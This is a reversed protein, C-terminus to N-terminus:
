HPFIVRTKILGPISVTVAYVGSKLGMYPYNLSGTGKRALIERGQVDMIKLSYSGATQISVGKMTIDIAQAPSKSDLSTSASSDLHIVMGPVSIDKPNNESTGIKDILAGSIILSKGTLTVSDKIDAAEESLLDQAWIAKIGTLPEPFNIVLEKFHGFIGIPQSLDKVQITVKARPHYWQDEPKVRGETAVAVPGNPYTTAMVYPADGEIEVVPLEMNRSLIAPASQYVMKGWVARYWTDANTHPYSDILENKSANFTGIGTVFAPAIRQWRGFREVENMRKQLCRKDGSLQHHFDEGNLTREMFNPHRLASSLVGLGAAVQTDDHHMVHATYKPQSQTQSLIDHIRRINTATILIPAVDYVRFVDAIQLRTLAAQQGGGGPAFQSPYSTRSDDDWHLNLPGGSSGPYEIKLEPYIEKKVKSSLYQAMDGGDIKWYEIGAYKSWMVFARIANEPPSGRTWIGLGRWGLKKIDENFLRLYEQPEKGAYPPFDRPDGVLSFFPASGDVVRENALKTQWGHDILFYYDSRGKPLYTTAWGEQEDYVTSHNLQERANSNNIQSFDTIEGGRQQWYNQAYWTCWYNPESAPNSPVLNESRAFVGSIILGAVIYFLINKSQRTQQM